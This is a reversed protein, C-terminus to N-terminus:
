VANHKMMRGWAELKEIRGFLAAYSPYAAEDWIGHFRAWLVFVALYADVGTLNEGLAFKTKVEKLNGEIFALAAKSNEKGKAKAAEHAGADDIVKFPAFVAGFAKAHVASGLYGIWEYFRVVDDGLYKKEPALQSIATLIAPIETIVKGDISLAPVQGKPNVTKAYEERAAADRFNHKISEYPLGSDELLLHPAISCAMPFYYLKITPAM